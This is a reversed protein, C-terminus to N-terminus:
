YNIKFMDFIHLNRTTFTIVGNSYEFDLKEESPLILIEKPQKKSKISIDFEPITPADDEENINVASVLFTNKDEFSIIEVSQPATTEISSEFGAYKFIELLVDAYPKPAFAEFPAASWIIKGKGVNKIVVAPSDTIIGPPDSHISAFNDNDEGRVSYPLVIKALVEGDNTDVIPLPMEFPIPYKLNFDCLIKEKGEVAGVYVQKHKTYEKFKIGAFELLKPDAGSFYLTGGNLVYNKLGEYAQPKLHNVLSCIILKQKDFDNIQYNTIISQPIHRKSLLKVAGVSGNHHSIESDFDNFKSSIGSYIGIESYLEGNLYKEYKEEEEFIEGMLDYIRKDMTGVPDIADILLTAGHHACTLMVALKLQDHSKTITHKFLNPNCRCTMYEFPRKKTQNYYYKCVYSQEYFGGYLDGGTYDCANNVEDGCALWQEHSVASAFNQEITLQPKLSLTYDTVAQAWEGMWEMMKKNLLHYTEDKVVHTATNIGRPMDLGTEDKFRKQCNECYCIHPWYPMDYFMGELQFYDLMEKIQEFVFARYEMNNPCCLGYRDEDQRRSFGTDKIMRWEPHRDHEVNNFNLSYYGIVNMNEKHMLDITRKILDQKGLLNKHMVGVKTPFYCLGVHSQLYVMPSDIKAAKLCEVYAEPSFESLYSPDTDNIHMDCLHRRYSKEYWKM